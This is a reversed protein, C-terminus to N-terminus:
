NRNFIIDLPLLLKGRVAKKKRRSSNWIGLTIKEEGCLCPWSPYGSVDYIVMCRQHYPDTGYRGVAQLWDSGSGLGASPRWGRGWSGIVLSAYFNSRCSTQYIILDRARLGAGAPDLFRVIRGSIPLIIQSVAISHMTSSISGLCGFHAGYSPDLRLPHRPIDSSCCMCLAIFLISTELSLEDIPAIVLDACVKVRGLM